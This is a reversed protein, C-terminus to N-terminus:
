SAEHYHCALSGCPGHIASPCWHHSRCMLCCCASWCHASVSTLPLSTLHGDEPRDTKIPYLCARVAGAALMGEWPSQNRPVSQRNLLPGMKLRATCGQEIAPTLVDRNCPLPILQQAWEVLDVVIRVWELPYSVTYLVAPSSITYLLTMHQRDVTM